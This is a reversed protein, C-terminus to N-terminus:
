IRYSEKNYVTVQSRPYFVTLFNLFFSFIVTVNIKPGSQVNERAAKFV